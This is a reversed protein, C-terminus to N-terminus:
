GGVISVEHEVFTNSNRREIVKWVRTVINFYTRWQASPGFIHSSSTITKNHYFFTSENEGFLLYDTSPPTVMLSDFIGTLKFKFKNQICQKSNVIRYLIQVIDATLPQHPRYIITANKCLSLDHYTEMESNLKLKVALCYVHHTPSTM